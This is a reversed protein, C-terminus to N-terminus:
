GPLYLPVGDESSDLYAHSLMNEEHLQLKATGFLLKKWEVFTSKRVEDKCVEMKIPVIAGDVLDVGSRVTESKSINQCGM